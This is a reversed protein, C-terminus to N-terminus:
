VKIEEIRVATFYQRHGRKKHYRKRRKF